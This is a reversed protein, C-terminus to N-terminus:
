TIRWVSKKVHPLALGLNFLEKVCLGISEVTTINTFLSKIDFSCVSISEHNINLKVIDEAFSFSDKVNYQSFYHELPKLIKHQPSYIM